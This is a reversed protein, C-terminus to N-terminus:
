DADDLIAATGASSRVSFPRTNRTARMPWSCAISRRSLGPTTLLTATAAHEQGYDDLAIILGEAALERVREVITSDVRGLSNETLELCMRIAPHMLRRARLANVFGDRLLQDAEINISLFSVEPTITQSATMHHLARDTIQLTLDDLMGQDRAIDILTPPSLPTNDARTYRALVEFGVIYGGAVDVVPQFAVTVSGERIAGMVEAVLGISEAVLGEAHKRERKQEYMREDAAKMVEDFTSRGVPAPAGIGIRADITLSEIQVPKEVARGIRSAVASATDSDLLVAFEDGGIRAVIDEARVSKRIRRGVIDLVTNGVSHGHTDNVLKFDDLDMLLIAYRGPETLAQFEEFFGRINLLGTVSDTTAQDRLTRTSRRDYLAQTAIHALAELAKRELASFGDSDSRRTLIIHRTTDGPAHVPASLEFPRGPKADIRTSGAPITARAANELAVLITEDSGWPLALAANILGNLKQELRTRRVQQSIVLLVLAVILLSNASRIELGAGLDIRSM